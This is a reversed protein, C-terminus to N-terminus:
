RFTRYHFEHAIQKLGIDGASDGYACIHEFDSLNLFDRLRKVKEERVCNQGEIKGTVQEKDFQIRTALLDVGQRRCWATLYVEPSASVVIVRHGQSKHWSIRDLASQKVIRPLREQVYREGIQELRNKDWGRYFYTIVFEKTRSSSLCKIAYLFILPSLVLVGLLMGPWGHTFIIFDKFSDRTTITGDFDFIALKM